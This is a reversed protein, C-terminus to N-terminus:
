DSPPEVRGTRQFYSMLMQCILAWSIGFCWGALVDSPYHVGLYVRSVGVLLTLIAATTMLHIRVSRSAQTQALMLGLTLYCVAASAAHGSPFSLTSVQTLPAVIDPRARAFALKLFTNLLAGSLVTTLVLLGAHYKGTALLFTAVITVLLGLVATSGLATIDRVVDLLWPPGIPRSLDTANRLAVMLWRDAAIPEGESVELAIFAFGFLLVAVFLTPAWSKLHGAAIQSETTRM